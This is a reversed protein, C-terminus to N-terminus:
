RDTDRYHITRTGNTSGDGVRIINENALVYGHERSATNDQESIQYDNGTKRGISTVGEVPVHRGDTPDILDYGDDTKALYGIADGWHLELLATGLKKDQANDTENSYEFEFPVIGDVPIVTEGNHTDHVREEISM